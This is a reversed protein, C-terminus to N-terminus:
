PGLSEYTLAKPGLSWVIYPKQAIKIGLAEPSLVLLYIALTLPSVKLNLPNAPLTLKLRVLFTPLLGPACPVRRSSETVRSTRSRTSCLWFGVKIRLAGFSFGIVKYRSYSEVGGKLFGRYVYIYIYTNYM